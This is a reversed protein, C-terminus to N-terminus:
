TPPSTASLCLDGNTGLTAIVSNLTTQATVYNINPGDPETATM